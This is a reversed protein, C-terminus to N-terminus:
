SYQRTRPWLQGTTVTAACPAYVAPNATRTAVDPMTSTTFGASISTWSDPFAVISGYANNTAANTWTATSSQSGTATVVKDAINILVRATTTAGSTAATTLRTTFSNTWSFGTPTTTFGRPAVMVLLTDLPWITTTSGTSETTVTNPNSTSTTVDHYQLPSRQYGSIPGPYELWAVVAQTPTSFTVTYSATVGDAMRYLWATTVGVNSLMSWGSSAITNTTGCAAAVVLLNGYAPTSSYTVTLSSVDSSGGTTSGTQLPNM